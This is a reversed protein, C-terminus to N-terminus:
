ATLQRYDCYHSQKQRKNVKYLSWFIELPELTFAYSRFNNREMIVPELKWKTVARNKRTGAHIHM